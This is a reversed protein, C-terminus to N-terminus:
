KRRPSQVAGSAPPTRSRPRSDARDRRVRSRPAPARLERVLRAAASNAPGVPSSASSRSHRSTGASSAARPPSANSSAGPWAACTDPTARAPRGRWRPAGRGRPGRARPRPGRYAGPRPHLAISRITPARRRCAARRLRRTPSSSSSARASPPRAARARRSAGRSRAARQAVDGRHELDQAREARARLPIGVVIVRHQDVRARDAIGLRGVVEHALHARREQHETRQERAEAGRAHGLGAAARDAHPRDILVQLTQAREARLEREVVAVDLGVAARRVDAARTVNSRLVTFPVCFTIIAAHRASPSVTISFAARSGSTISSACTSWFIPASIWPAPLSRIATCPTACAARRGACRPPRDCRPPCAARRPAIVVPPSTRTGPTSGASGAPSARCAAGLAAGLDRGIRVLTRRRAVRGGCGSWTVVAGNGPKGVSM